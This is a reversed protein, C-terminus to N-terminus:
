LPSQRFSPFYKVNQVEFKKQFETEDDGAKALHVNPFPPVSLTLEAAEASRCKMAAKRPRMVKCLCTRNERYGSVSAALDEVWM